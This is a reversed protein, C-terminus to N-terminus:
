KCDPYGQCCDTYGYCQTNGYFGNTTFAITLVGKSNKEVGLIEREKLWEYSVSTECDISAFGDDNYYTIGTGNLAQCRAKLTEMASPRDITSFDSGFKYVMYTGRVHNHLLFYRPSSKLYDYRIHDSTDTDGLLAAERIEVAQAAAMLNLNTINAFTTDDCYTNKISENSSECPNVPVCAQNKEVWVYKDPNKDCMAKRDAVSPVASAAGIVSVGALVSLLTKKM